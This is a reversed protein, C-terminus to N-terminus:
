FQRRLTCYVVGSYVFIRLVACLTPFYFVIVWIHLRIITGQSWSTRITNKSSPLLLKSSNVRLVTGLWLVEVFQSLLFLSVHCSYTVVHKYWTILKDTHYNCLLNRLGEVVFPLIYHYGAKCDSNARIM